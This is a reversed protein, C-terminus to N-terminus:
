ESGRRCEIGVTNLKNRKDRRGDWRESWVDSNAGDSKWSGAEDGVGEYMHCSWGMVTRILFNELSTIFVQTSITYKNWHSFEREIFYCIYCEIFLWHVNKMSPVIATSRPIFSLTPRTTYALPRRTTPPQFTAPAPLCTVAEATM